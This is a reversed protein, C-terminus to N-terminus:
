CSTVAWALPSASGVRVSSPRTAPATAGAGKPAAAPIKGACAQAQCICVELGGGPPCISQATAWAKKGLQWPMVDARLRSFVAM